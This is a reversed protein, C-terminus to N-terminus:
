IDMIKTWNTFFYNGPPVRCLLKRIFFFLIVAKKSVINIKEGIIKNILMSKGANAM